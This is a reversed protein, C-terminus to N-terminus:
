KQRDCFQALLLIPPMQKTKIIEWFEYNINLYNYYWICLMIPFLEFFSEIGFYWNNGNTLAKIVYLLRCVTLSATWSCMELLLDRFLITIKRLISYRTKHKKLPVTVSNVENPVHCLIVDRVRKICNKSHFDLWVLSGYLIFICKIRFFASSPSISSSYNRLQDAVPRRSTTPASKCSWGWKLLFELM